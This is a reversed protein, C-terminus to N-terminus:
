PLKQGTKMLSTKSNRHKFISYRVPILKSSIKWLRPIFPRTSLNPIHSPTHTISAEILNFLVVCPLCEMGVLDLVGPRHAIEENLREHLFARALAEHGSQIIPGTTTATTHMLLM